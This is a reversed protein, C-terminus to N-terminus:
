CAPTPSNPLKPYSSGLGSAWLRFRLATGDGLCVSRCVSLSLSLALSLSPPFSGCSGAAASPEPCHGSRDMPVPKARLHLLLSPLDANRGAARSSLFRSLSLSLALALSLSLPRSPPLFRPLSPPLPPICVFKEVTWRPNTSPKPHQLFTATQRRSFPPKCGVVM